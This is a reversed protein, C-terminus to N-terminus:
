EPLSLRGVLAAGPDWGLDDHDLRFRSAKGWNERDCAWSVLKELRIRARAAVTVHGGGSRRVHVGVVVTESVGGHAVRAM